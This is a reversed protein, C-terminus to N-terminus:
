DWECKGDAGLGCREFFVPANFYPDSAEFVKALARTNLSTHRLADMMGVQGKNCAEDYAQVCGAIAGAVIDYDNATM